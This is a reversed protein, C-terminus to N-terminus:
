IGAMGAAAPDADMGTLYSGPPGGALERFERNLHAQDYYGCTSAIATLSRHGPQHLMNVARHFRVLRAMSKPTLGVQERFRDALRKRSWGTQDHLASVRLDGRSSLLQQWAGALVAM